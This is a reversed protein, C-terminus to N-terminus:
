QKCEHIAAVAVAEFLKVYYKNKNRLEKYYCYHLEPFRNCLAEMLAKKTKKQEPPCLAYLSTSAEECVTIAKAKFRKKLLSVLYKWRRTQYNEHPTSLVIKKICYRRACPELATIIKDAKRPSWPSKHLRIAYDVLSGQHIIALGLLRTNTSIGLIAM